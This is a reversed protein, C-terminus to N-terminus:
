FSNSFFRDPLITTLSTSKSLPNVSFDATPYTYPIVMGKIFGCVLLVTKSLSPVNINFPSGDNNEGGFISIFSINAM